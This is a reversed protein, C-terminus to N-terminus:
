KREVALGRLLVVERVTEVGNQDHLSSRVRSAHAFDEFRHRNLCGFQRCVAGVYPRVVSRAM